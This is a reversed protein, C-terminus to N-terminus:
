VAFVPCIPVQTNDARGIQIPKHVQIQFQFPLLLPTKYVNLMYSGLTNFTMM